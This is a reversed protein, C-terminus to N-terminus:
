NRMHKTCVCLGKKYRREKEFGAEPAYVEHKRIKGEDNRGEDM